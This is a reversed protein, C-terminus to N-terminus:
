TTACKILFEKFKNKSLPKRTHPMKTSIELVEFPSTYRNSDSEDLFRNNIRKIESEIKNYADNIIQFRKPDSDPSYKKILSVYAKRITESDAKEDVGLAIYPNM